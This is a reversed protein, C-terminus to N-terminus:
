NELPSSFFVIETGVREGERPRALLQEKNTAVAEPGSVVERAHWSNSRIRRM